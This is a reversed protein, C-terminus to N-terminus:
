PRRRREDVHRRIIERQIECIQKLLGKLKRYEASWQRVDKELDVPVYITRTKGGVKVTVYTSIHKPGRRCHCRDVNGCTRAILVVSGNVIPGISRLQKLLGDRRRTLWAINRELRYGSSRAKPRM